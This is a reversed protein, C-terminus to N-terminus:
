SRILFTWFRRALNKSSTVGLWSLNSKQLKLILYFTFRVLVPFMIVYFRVLLSFEGEVEELAAGAECDSFIM